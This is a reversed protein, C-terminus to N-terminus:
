TRCNWFLRGCLIGSCTTAIARAIGLQRGSESSIRWSFAQLATERSEPLTRKGM